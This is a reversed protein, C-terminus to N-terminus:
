AAIPPAMVLSPIAAAVAPAIALSILGKTSATAYTVSTAGYAGPGAYTGTAVGIGGGDGAISGFDIRETLSALNANTWGSFNFISSLDSSQCCAAVVLCDAVTTTAGPISGSTDTTTDVGGASVDFPNASDFTDKTIGLIQGIAHDGPSSTTSPNSSEAIRYFITLRTTAAVTQPSSPAEIWGSVTITQDRTELFMLLLDGVATGTPLSPTIAGTGAASGGVGRVTPAAM